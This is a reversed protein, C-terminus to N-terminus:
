KKGGRVYPYRKTKKDGPSVSNNNDNLYAEGNGYKLRGVEQNLRAVEARCVVLERDLVEIKGDKIRCEICNYIVRSDEIVASGVGDDADVDFPEGRGLMLWEVRLGPYVDLLKYVQKLPMWTGESTWNSVSPRKMKVKEALKTPTDGTLILLKNLQQAVINKMAADFIFELFNL